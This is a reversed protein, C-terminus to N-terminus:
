GTRAGGGGLRAQVIFLEVIYCGAIVALFVMIMRELRHYQQGLIALYSSCWTLPAGIWVAPRLAPQLRAGRGPVGGPGHGVCALVIRARRAALGAPALLPPPHQGGAFARTVIGLRAAMHQLFILM